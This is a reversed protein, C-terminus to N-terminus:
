RRAGGFHFANRVYLGDSEASGLWESWENMPRICDKVLGATNFGLGGRATCADALERLDTRCTFIDYDPSDRKPYFTYGEVATNSATTGAVPTHAWTNFWYHVAYVGRRRLTDRLRSDTTDQLLVALRWDHAAYPSTLWADLVRCGLRLDFSRLARTLRIPGTRELVKAVDRSYPDLERLEGILLDLFPHQPEAAMFANSVPAEGIDKYIHNDPEKSLVLSHGSLLTDLPQLSEMDIDAYVGGFRHLILYRAIDVKEIMLQLADFLPSISPYHGRVM